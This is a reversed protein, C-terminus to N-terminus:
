DSVLEKELDKELWCPICLPECVEAESYRECKECKM